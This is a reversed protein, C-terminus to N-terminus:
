STGRASATHELAHLVPTAGRISVLLFDRGDVSLIVARDTAGLASSEVVRLRRGTALRAGISDKHRLILAWLLCLAGLFAGLILIQDMHLPDMTSGETRALTAIGM